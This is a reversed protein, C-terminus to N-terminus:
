KGSLCVMGMKGGMLRLGLVMYPVLVMLGVELLSSNSPYLQVTIKAAECWRSSALVELLMSQMILVRWRM